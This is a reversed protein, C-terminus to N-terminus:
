VGFPVRSFGLGFVIFVSHCGFHDVYIADLRSIYVLAYCRCAQHAIDESDKRVVLPVHIGCRWICVARCCVIAAFSSFGTRSYVEIIVIVHIPCNLDGVLEAWGVLYCLHECHLFCNVQARGPEWLMRFHSSWPNKRVAFPSRRASSPRRFFAGSIM